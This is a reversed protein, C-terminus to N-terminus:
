QNLYPSLAWLPGLSCVGWLLGACVRGIGAGRDQSNWVRYLLWLVAILSGIGSWLFVPNPQLFLLPSFCLAFPGSVAFCVFALAADISVFDDYLSLGVFGICFALFMGFAIQVVQILLTQKQM